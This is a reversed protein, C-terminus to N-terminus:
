LNANEEVAKQLVEVFDKVHDTDRFTFADQYVIQGTFLIKIAGCIRHWLREYWTSGDWTYPYCGIVNFYLTVCFGEDKDVWMTLTHDDSNCGCTTKYCAYKSEENIREISNM